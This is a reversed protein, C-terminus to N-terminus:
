KGVLVKKNSLVKQIQNRSKSLHSSYKVVSSFDIKNIEVQKPNNKSVMERLQQASYESYKHDFVDLKNFYDKISESKDLVAVPLYECCRGKTHGQSEYPFAVVNMPNILVLMKTNGAYSHEGLKGTGTFHLGSSCTQKHDADCDERPMKVPENIHIEMRGTHNDTYTVKNLVTQDSNLDDLNGILTYGKTDKGVQITKYNDKDILYVNYNAVKKKWRKIKTYESTIFEILKNDSTNKSKIRVWRSAVFYGHPTIVFNNYEIFRFLYERAIPDPNLSAWMWFHILSKFKNPDNYSEVFANILQPPLPINIGKIKVGDKHNTFLGSEHEKLSSINIVAKAVEKDKIFYSKLISEKKGSNYAAKLNKYLEKAMRIPGYKEGKLVMTVRGGINILNDKKKM